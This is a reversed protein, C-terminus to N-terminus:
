KVKLLEAPCDYDPSCYDIDKQHSNFEFINVFVGVGGEGSWRVEVEPEFGIGDFEVVLDASDPIEKQPSKNKSITVIHLAPKYYHHLGGAECILPTEAPI